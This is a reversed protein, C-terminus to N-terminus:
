VLSYISNIYLYNLYYYDYDDFTNADGGGLNFLHFDILEKANGIEM